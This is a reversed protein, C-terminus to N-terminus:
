TGPKPQNPQPQNPDPNPNAPCVPKTQAQGIEIGDGCPRSGFGMGSVM